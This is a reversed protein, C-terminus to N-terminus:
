PHNPEKRLSAYLFAKGTPKESGGHPEVTVFIADIQALQEPADCRLAWRRNAENDLYLIGLSVPKSAGSESKGWAQFAAANQVRSQQDLDFAYFILSKGKTYFIRGYPKRRRSDSSVDFVDAIYLQRAGMLERIDRDASLYQDESGIRRQQEQNTASLGEVEKQLSAARATVEKNESRLTALEAQLQGYSQQMDRLRAALADREQVAARRQEESSNKSVSNENARAEATQLASRLHEIEGREKSSEAELQALRLSDVSLLDNLDNKDKALAEASAIPATDAKRMASEARRGARYSVLSAGVVLCVAAAAGLAWWTPARHWLSFSASTAAGSESRDRGNDTEHLAIRAFIRDGVKSDDWDQVEEAAGYRAALMPMAGKVFAGYESVAERCEDCIEVHAKLEASESATLTGSSALACLSRFKEHEQIEGNQQSM